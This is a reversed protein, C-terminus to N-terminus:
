AGRSHIVRHSGTFGTLQAPMPGHSFWLTVKERNRIPCNHGLQVPTCRHSSTYCLNPGLKLKSRVPSSRPLVLIRHRYFLSCISFLYLSVRQCLHSSLRSLFFPSHALHAPSFMQSARSHTVITM